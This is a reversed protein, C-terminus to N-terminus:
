ADHHNELLVTTPLATFLIREVPLSAVVLCLSHIVIPYLYNRQLVALHSFCMSNRDEVHNEQMPLGFPSGVEVWTNVPYALASKWVSM